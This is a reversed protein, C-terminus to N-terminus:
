CVTRRRPGEPRRRRRRKEVPQRPQPKTGLRLSKCLKIRNTVLRPRHMSGAQSAGSRRHIVSRRRDPVPYSGTWPRSAGRGVWAAARAAPSGARRGGGAPRTRGAAALPAARLARRDAAEEGVEGDATARVEALGVYASPRAREGGAVQEDVGGVDGALERTGEGPGRHLRGEGLVAGLGGSPELCSPRAPRTSASSGHRDATRRRSVAVPRVTAVGRALGVARSRTAAPPSGTRSSTSRWTRASTGVQEDCRRRAADRDPREDDGPVVAQRRQTSAWALSASGPM